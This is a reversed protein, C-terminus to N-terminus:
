YGMADNYAECGGMMGAQTAIESEWLTDKRRPRFYPNKIVQYFGKPDWDVLEAPVSSSVNCGLEFYEVSSDKKAFYTGLLNVLELFTHCDEGYWCNDNNLDPHSGWASITYNM